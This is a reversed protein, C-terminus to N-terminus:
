ADWDAAPLDPAPLDATSGVGSAEPNEGGCGARDGRNQERATWASLAAEWSYGRALLRRLVRERTRAPSANGTSRADANRIGASRSTTRAIRELAAAARRAEAGEPFAARVAEEILLDPLQRQRLHATVRIPGELRGEARHRAAALALSRDDLYRRERLRAIASEIEPDPYKRERLRARVEGESLDRRALM